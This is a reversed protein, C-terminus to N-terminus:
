EGPTATVPIGHRDQQPAPTMTGVHLRSRQSAWCPPLPRTAATRHLAPGGSQWVGWLWYDQDGPVGQWPRIPLPVQRDMVTAQPWQTGWGPDGVNSSPCLDQRPGSPGGAWPLVLMTFVVAGLGRYNMVSRLPQLPLPPERSLAAVQPLCSAWPMPTPHCPPRHGQCAHVQSEAKM